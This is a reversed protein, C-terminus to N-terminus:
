KANEERTKLWALDSLAHAILRQVQADQVQATRAYRDLLLRVKEIAELLTGAPEALVAADIWANPSETAVPPLERINAARGRMAIELKGAATRRDDLDIPRDMMTMAEPGPIAMREVLGAYRLWQAARESALARARRARNRRCGTM